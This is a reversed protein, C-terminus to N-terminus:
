VRASRDPFAQRMARVASVAETVSDYAKLVSLLGTIQLVERVRGSPKGFTVFGGVEVSTEWLRVLGGLGASDIFELGSLDFVLVNRGDEHLVDVAQTLEGVNLADLEGALRLVTVDDDEVVAISLVDPEM